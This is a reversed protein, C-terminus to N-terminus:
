PLYDIRKQFEAGLKDLEFLTSEVDWFTLPLGPFPLCVQVAHFFM